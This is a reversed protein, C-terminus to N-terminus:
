RCGHAFEDCAHFTQAERRCEGNRDGDHESKEGGDPVFPFGNVAGHAHASDVDASNVHGLNEFVLDNGHDAATRADAFFKGHCRKGATEVNLDFARVNALDAEAQLVVDGHKEADRDNKGPNDLQNLNEVVERDAGCDRCGIRCWMM